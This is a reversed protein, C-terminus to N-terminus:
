AATLPSDFEKRWKPNLTPVQEIAAVILDQAEKRTLGECVKIPRDDYFFGIGSPIIARGSQREDVFHPSAIRDMEFVRIRKTGLLIRRHTLKTSTFELEERGVLNWLWQYILFVSFLAFAAFVLISESKRSPKTVALAIWIVVWLPIFMFRFLSFRRRITVSLKGPVRHFRYGM